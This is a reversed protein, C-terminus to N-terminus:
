GSAFKDFMTQLTAKMFIFDKSSNALLAYKFSMKFLLYKQKEM